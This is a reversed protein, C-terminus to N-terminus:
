HLSYECMHRNQEKGPTTQACQPKNLNRAKSVGAVYCFAMPCHLPENSCILLGTGQRQQYVNIDNRRHVSSKDPRRAEVKRRTDHICTKCSRDSFDNIPITPRM